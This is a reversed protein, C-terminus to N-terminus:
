PLLRYGTELTRIGEDGGGLRMLVNIYICNILNRAEGDVLIDVM